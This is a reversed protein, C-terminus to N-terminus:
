GTQSASATVTRRPVLLKASYCTCAECVDGFFLFHASVVALLCTFFPFFPTFTRQMTCGGSCSDSPCLGDEPMVRSSGVVLLMAGSPGAVAPMAGSPDVVALMVGSPGVVPLMVGSPGVVAPMVRLPGVVIRM